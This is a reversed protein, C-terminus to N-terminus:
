WRPASVMLLGYLINPMTSQTALAIKVGMEYKIRAEIGSVATPIDAIRIPKVHIARALVRGGREGSAHSSISM